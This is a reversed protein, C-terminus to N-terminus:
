FTVIGCAMEFCSCVIDFVNITADHAFRKDDLLFQSGSLYREERGAVLGVPHPVFHM